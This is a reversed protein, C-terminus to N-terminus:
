SLLLSMGHGSASAGGRGTCACAQSLRSNENKIRHAEDIIIYRWHYRRFHNKEKIVMEYSTVCVDFAGPSMKAKQLEQLLHRLVCPPHAPPPAPPAPPVCPALPYPVCEVSSQQSVHSITITTTTGAHLSSHKLASRLTRLVRAEDNQRGAGMSSRGTLALPRVREEQNGHFKICRIIPCFRKFENMWNGLTSKPVIVIHPGKIGRYEHLYAVLSITQLTKGLGQHPPM